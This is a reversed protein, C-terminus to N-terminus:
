EGLAIQRRADELDSRFDDRLKDLGAFVKEHVVM